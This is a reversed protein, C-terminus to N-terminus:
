RLAQDIDAILDDVFEIGVSIRILNDPSIPQDGEVSRRHEVLSEVGGLSTAHKFISLRNAFHMAEPKGGKVLISVISGFGNKMQRKAIDHNHHSALGPYFVKEIRAHTMLYNAIVEANACQLNFRLTFTSLSRNLLWCDFPSPVAGATKQYDRINNSVENDLNTMVVGGLIDSHGSFFKTTSYMVYDVYMELNKQLMPTAFTNDCVTTINRKKALSVVAVIDTIKLQPNSPTEIWILKTDVQILKEINVINSMDALDFRVKWRKFFKDLLQRTGHYCDDPIIIHCNPELINEFLANIAAMGSSFTIATTAGEIAALKSEVALRNPNDARTYIYKGTSGDINREFTTSLHIPQIVDTNEGHSEGAHVALTQINLKKM